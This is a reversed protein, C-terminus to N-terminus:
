LLGGCCRLWGVGALCCFIGHFHPQSHCQVQNTHRSKHCCDTLPLTRKHAQTLQPWTSSCELGKKMSWESVRGDTSISVLREGRGDERAVFAIQWVADTHSGNLPESILLPKGDGDKAMERRADFIAVTGALWWISASM